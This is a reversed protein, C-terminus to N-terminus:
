SELPTLPKISHPSTILVHLKIIYVNRVTGEMILINRKRDSHPHSHNIWIYKGTQM